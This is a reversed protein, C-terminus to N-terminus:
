PTQPASYSLSGIKTSRLQIVMGRDQYRKLFPTGGREGEVVGSNPDTTIPWAVPFDTFLRKM